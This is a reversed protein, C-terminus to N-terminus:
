RSARAEYSYGRLLNTLRLGDPLEEITLITKGARSLARTPVGDRDHREYDLGYPALAAKVADFPYYAIQFDAVIYEPKIRGMGDASSFRIGKSKSYSLDMIAAGMSGLCVMDVGESDAKSLVDLFYVKGGYSGRVRQSLDLSGRLLSTDLLPLALDDAIYFRSPQRYEGGGSLSRCSCLFCAACIFAM